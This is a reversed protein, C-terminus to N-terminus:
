LKTHDVAKSGLMIAVVWRIGEVYTTGEVHGLHVMITMLVVTFMTVMVRSGTIKGQIRKKIDMELSDKVVEIEEESFESINERAM